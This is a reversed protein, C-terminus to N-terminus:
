HVWTSATAARIEAVAGRALARTHMTDWFRARLVLATHMGNELDERALADTCLDDAIALLDRHHQDDVLTHLEFFVCQSRELSSAQCAYIGRLLKEYITGVVCETGFGLAGVAAAPSATQLYHLFSRRWEEVHEPVESLRAATLGLAACFRRFLEPHAVGDVWERAIGHQALAAHDADDLLGREERLNDELLAQHRKDALREIVARLYRPFWASYGSYSHAFDRLAWPMDAYMGQEMHALWPHRLAPHHLAQQEIRDLFIAPESQATDTHTPHHM